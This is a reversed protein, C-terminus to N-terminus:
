SVDGLERCVEIKAGGNVDSMRRAAAFDRPVHRPMSSLTYRHRHQDTGYRRDHKLGLPIWPTQRDVDEVLETRREGRIARLEETVDWRPREISEVTGARLYRLADDVVPPALAHHACGLRMVVADLCERLGIEGVIQLRDGCRDEDQVAVVILDYRDRV